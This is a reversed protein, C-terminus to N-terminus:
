WCWSGAAWVVTLRTPSGTARTPRTSSGVLSALRRHEHLQRRLQGPLVAPCKGLMTTLCRRALKRGTIERANPVVSRGSSGTRQVLIASWIRLSAWGDTCKLRSAGPAREFNKRTVHKRVHPGPLFMTQADRGKIPMTAPSWQNISHSYQDIIGWELRHLQDSPEFTNLLSPM